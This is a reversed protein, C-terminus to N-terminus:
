VNLALSDLKQYKVITVFSEFNLLFKYFKFQAAMNFIINNNNYNNKNNNNNNNDHNIITKM